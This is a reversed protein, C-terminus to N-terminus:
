GAIQPSVQIVSGEIFANDTSEYARTHLYYLGGAAAAIICLGIGALRAARTRRPGAKPSRVEPPMTDDPLTENTM